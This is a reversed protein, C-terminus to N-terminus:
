GGTRITRQFDIARQIGQQIQEGESNAANFQGLVDKQEGKLQVTVNANKDVEANTLELDHAKEAADHDFGIAAGCWGFFGKNDEAAQKAAKAQEKAQQQLVTQRTRADEQNKTNAELKSESCRVDVGVSQSLMAQANAVYRSISM